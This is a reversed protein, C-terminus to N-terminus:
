AGRPSQGIFERLMKRARFLQSKSTGESLDLMGALERHKFGEVDHLLFVLRAKGGNGKIAHYMRESQIPYTGSNSDKEGHIMLMPENIKEAHFFPSIRAYAERLSVKGERASKVEPGLLVIGAEYRKLLEYQHSAHRNAALLTSDGKKDKKAAKRASKMRAM